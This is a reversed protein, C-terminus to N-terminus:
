NAQAGTAIELKVICRQSYTERYSVRVALGARVPGGNAAPLHFCRFSGLNSYGFQVTQVEFREVNLDSKRMTEYNSVAGEVTKYSGYYTFIRRWFYHYDAFNLGVGICILVLAMLLVSKSKLDGRRVHWIIYLILSVALVAVVLEPLAALLSSWKSGTSDFVVAYKM